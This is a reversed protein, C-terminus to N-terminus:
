DRLGFADQLKEALLQIDLKEALLQVDKLSFAERLKEALLQSDKMPPAIGNTSLNELLEDAGKRWGDGNKRTKIPKIVALEALVRIIALLTNRETAHLPKEVVAPKPFFHARLKEFEEHWLTLHQRSIEKPAKFEIQKIEPDRLKGSVLISKVTISTNIRLKQLTNIEALPLTSWCQDRKIDSTQYTNDILRYTM